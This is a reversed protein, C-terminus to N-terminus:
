SKSRQQGWIFSMEVFLPLIKDPKLEIKTNIRLFLVSPSHALRCLEAVKMLSGGMSLLINRYKFQHLFVDEITIASTKNSRCCRLGNQM